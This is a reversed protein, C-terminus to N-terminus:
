SKLPGNSINEQNLNRQNPHYKVLIILLKSFNTKSQIIPCSPNFTSSPLIQIHIYICSCIIIITMIGLHSREEQKKNLIYTSKSIFDLFLKLYTLQIIRKTKRM